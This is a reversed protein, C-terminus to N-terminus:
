PGVKGRKLWDYEGAFADKGWSEYRLGFYDVLMGMLNGPAEGALVRKVLDKHAVYREPERLFIQKCPESCFIYRQGEYDLSTAANLEPTGHCLVFQCLNCFGIIASGHVAFDLGPDSRAWTDSIREWIRDFAPWSAPYKERLWAREDPGPLVFDFWTTSRYSYASAYIMHHHHDLLTPLQDLYPPPELGYRAVEDCYQELVWEQVFEKFSEKRKDLPTLYDFTFGTVVAFLPWSRWFWKDLLAQAYARDHAAVIALTPGGIQAHRAEDTQISSLLTRWLTDNMREALTTLGMFQLNTFGTEFVFNTGIALEIPNSWLLLEDVLHRAAIAIWNNSHYLRHTWDFQADARLYAHAVRLPEQTHRLEDMAGYLATHRWSSTRGFRAARLNGITAAFEALAFSAAHLKLASQWGRDLRGLGRGNALQDFVGALAAHKRAQGDVYESYTTRYPEDWGQWASAPLYPVGSVEPPFLEEPRVYSPEWDLQRALDLWAERALVHGGDNWQATEANSGTAGTDFM